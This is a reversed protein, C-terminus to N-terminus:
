KENAIASLLLDSAQAAVLLVNTEYAVPDANIIAAKKSYTTGGALAAIGNAIHDGVKMDSHTDLTGIPVDSHVSGELTVQAMCQACDVTKADWGMMSTSAIADGKSMGELTAGSIISTKATMTFSSTGNGKFNAFNVVITVALVSTGAEQAVKPFAKNAEAKDMASANQRWADMIGKSGKGVRKSGDAGLPVSRQGTPIVFTGLRGEEFNTAQEMAAYAPSKKALNATDMFTIGQAAAQKMFDAYVEDAIKQMLDHDVGALTGTIRSSASNGGSFTGKALAAVTDETVFTVRFAGLAYTKQGKFPEGRTVKASAAKDKSGFIGAANITSTSAITACLTCAVALRSISVYMSM